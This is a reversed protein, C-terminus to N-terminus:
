APLPLTLDTRDGNNKMGYSPINQYIEITHKKLDFGLHVTEGSTKFEVRVFDDQVKEATSPAPRAACQEPPTGLVRQLLEFGEESFHNVDDAASGPVWIAYSKGLLPNAQVMRQLLNYRALVTQPEKGQEEALQKLRRTTQSYINIKQLFADKETTDAPLNNNFWAALVHWWHARKQQSESKIIEQMWPECRAAGPLVPASPQTTGAMAAACLLLAGIFSIFYVRKMYFGICFSPIFGAKINPYFIFFAYFLTKLGM